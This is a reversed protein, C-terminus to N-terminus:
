NILKDDKKQMRMVASKSDLKEQVNELVGTISEQTRCLFTLLLAVQDLTEELSQVKQELEKVRATLTSPKSDM